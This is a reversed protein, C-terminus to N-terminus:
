QNVTPKLLSVKILSALVQILPVSVSNGAQKYLQGNPIKKPLKFYKPFGQLNFCEKPTLRRWINKNNVKQKIIPIHALGDMMGISQSGQGPFTIVYKSM